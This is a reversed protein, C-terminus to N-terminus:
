ENQRFCLITKANEKGIVLKKPGLLRFLLILFRRIAAANTTSAKM